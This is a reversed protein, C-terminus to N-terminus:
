KCICKMLFFDILKKSQMMKCIKEKQKLISKANRNPSMRLDFPFQLSHADLAGFGFWNKKEHLYFNMYKQQEERELYM